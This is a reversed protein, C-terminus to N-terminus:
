QMPMKLSWYTMSSTQICSLCRFQCMLRTVRKKKKCNTSCNLHLELHSDKTSKKKVGLPPIRKAQLSLLLMNPCTMLPFIYPNMVDYRKGDPRICLHVTIPDIIYHTSSIICSHSSMLLASVVNFGDIVSTILLSTDNFVADQTNGDAKTGLFIKDFEWDKVETSTAPDGAMVITRDDEKTMVNEYGASIEKESLPRVRVYVRIRGLHLIALTTLVCVCVGHIDNIM